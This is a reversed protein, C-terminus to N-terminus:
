AVDKSVADKLEKITREMSDIRDESDRLHEMLIEITQEIRRSLLDIDDQTVRGDM